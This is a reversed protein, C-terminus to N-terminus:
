ASRVVQLPPTKAMSVAFTEFDPALLARSFLFGQARDCGDSALQNFQAATEVGEATVSLGLSHAMMIIATAIEGGHGEDDIVQVFSRDIKLVDVPLRQLRSLSSYGTGFDDVALQVGMNKLQGLATFTTAGLRMVTSETIELELAEHPFGTDAAAQSVMPVLGGERFQVGSVNVALGLGPVLRRRWIGVQKMATRIIKASMDVILGSEEAFRVLDQTPMMGHVPDRWRVLAEVARIRGSRFDVIPQYAVDLRGDEIGRKVASFTFVASGDARRMEASYRQWTNRVEKAHYVADDAARLLTDGNHADDPFVAIGISYSVNVEHGELQHPEACRQLLKSAIHEADRADSLEVLVIAFEDGGLRAVTDQARVSETLRAAVSLLLLDGAATGYRDNVAKFRDLDLYLVATPRGSARSRAIAQDLRDAFLQRNPLDTLVDHNALHLLTAQKRETLQRMLGFGTGMGLYRGGRTVIFGDFIYRTSDDALLDSVVDLPTYEDVILPSREMFTEVPRGIYLERGFPRSLAELFRFRNLVGVPRNHADVVAVANLNPVRTFREYVEQGLAEARFPPVPQTLDALCGSDVAATGATEM